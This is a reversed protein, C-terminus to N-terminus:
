VIKDLSSLYINKNVTLLWITSVEQRLKDLFPGRPKSNFYFGLGVSNTWFHYVGLDSTTDVIAIFLQIITPVVM